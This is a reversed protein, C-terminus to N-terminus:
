HFIHIQHFHFLIQVSSFQFNRRLLKIFHLLHVVTANQHCYLRTPRNGKDHQGKKHEEQSEWGMGNRQRKMRKMSHFHKKM